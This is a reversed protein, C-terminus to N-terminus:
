EVLLFPGASLGVSLEAVSIQEVVQEAAFVQEVVLVPEAGM